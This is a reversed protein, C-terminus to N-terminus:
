RNGGRIMRWPVFKHRLLGLVKQNSDGQDVNVQVSLTNRPRHHRVRLQAMHGTDGNDDFWHVTVTVPKLPSMRRIQQVFTNSVTFAM